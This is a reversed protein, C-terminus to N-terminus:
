ATLLLNDILRVKGLHVAICLAAPQGSQHDELPLLTEIDAIEFYELQFAPQAAFAERVQAKVEAPSTGQELATKAGQLEAQIFPALAREDATLNRNRSSMALGDTERVTPAIVLEIPFSLDQILRRVILCQQLDKQGFYARTPQVLHFLKSVVIGVGNFHGPRFAGELVRELTGFDFTLVPQSPYMEAASPAFVVDCGAAELLACDQELTRPYRALDDANNFQIPNVFISCVVVANEQRARRILQLHGEHLAGMTPVFGISETSRTLYTRLEAQTFILQM